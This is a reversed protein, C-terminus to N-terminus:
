KHTSQMYYIRRRLSKAYCYHRFVAYEFNVGMHGVKVESALDM